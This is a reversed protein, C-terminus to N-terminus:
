FFSFLFLLALTLPVTDLFHAATLRRLDDVFEVNRRPMLPGLYRWPNLLLACVICSEVLCHTALFLRRIDCIVALDGFRKNLCRRLLASFDDCIM